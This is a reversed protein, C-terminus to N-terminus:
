DMDRWFLFWSTVLATANGLLLGVGVADRGVDFVYGLMPGALFIALFVFTAKRSFGPLWAKCLAKVGWIGTLAGIAGALAISVQEPLWTESGVMVYWAIAMVTGAVVYLLITLPIAALTHLVIHKPESIADM